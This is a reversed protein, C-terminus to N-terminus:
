PEHNRMVLPLYIQPRIRVTWVESWESQPSGYDADVAQVRWVYTGAAPTLPTLSNDELESAAMEPSQFSSDDDLQFRYGADPVSSWRFTPPNDALSGDAPALLQPAQLDPTTVSAIPLEVNGAHDTARPSLAYASNDDWTIGACNVAWATTGSAPLWTEGDVWGAGGWYKGDETRLISLEVKRVGSGPAYDYSTGSVTSSHAAVIEDASLHLTSVPALTDGHALQFRAPVNAGTGDLTVAVPGAPTHYQYDQAAVSVLYTGPPLNLVAYTGEADTDVVQSVPGAVTVSAAIPTGYAADVVQGAVTGNSLRVTVATWDPEAAATGSGPTDPDDSLLRPITDAALLAQSTLLM